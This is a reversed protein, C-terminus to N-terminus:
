TFFYVFIFTKTIIITHAFLEPTLVWKMASYGFNDRSIDLGVYLILM